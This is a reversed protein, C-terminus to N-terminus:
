KSPTSQIGPSGLLRQATAIVTPEDDKLARHLAPDSRPDARHHGILEVASRRVQGNTSELAALAMPVLIGSDQDPEFLSLYLLLRSRLMPDSESPEAQSLAAATLASKVGPHARVEPSSTLAFGAFDRIKADASDVLNTLCALGDSGARSLTLAALIESREVLHYRLDPVLPSLEAAPSPVANVLARLARAQRDEYTPVRRGGGLWRHWAERIRVRLSWPRERLVTALGPVAGLGMHRFALEAGRAPESTSAGELSELWESVTRGEHRFAPRGWAGGIAWLTLVAVTAAVAAWFMRIRRRGWASAAGPKM